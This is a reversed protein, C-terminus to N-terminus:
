LQKDETNTGGRHYVAGSQTGPDLVNYKEHPEQPARRETGQEDVRHDGDAGAVDPGPQRPGQAIERAVANRPDRAVQRLWPKEGEPREQRGSMAPHRIRAKQEGRLSDELDGVHGGAG